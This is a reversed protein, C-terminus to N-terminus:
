NKLMDIITIKNLCENEKFWGYFIYNNTVPKKLYSILNFENSDKHIEFPEITQGFVKFIM